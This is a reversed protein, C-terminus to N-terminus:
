DKTVLYIKNAEIGDSIFLRPTEDEPIDYLKLAVIAQQFSKELSLGFGISSYLQSAFVIAADDGISNNMGISAEINDIVKESIISSYCNNLVVLRLNDSSANILEVLTDMNLLKPQDNNDQFVLKGDSTGHGSFHLITPNVENIFQILDTVRAAWRTEFSISDRKLSKQISEHIERAEKELKLKQQQITNRDDDIFEIDPNSAIFLINIKRKAEKLKKIEKILENQTSKQISLDMSLNDITLKRQKELKQYEMEKAKNLKPKKTRRGHIFDGKYIPNELINLITSDRWNTKDLVKEENLINSIKKYSLGDHYMNFIRIAVDKTAYDIVLKKDEHKYGLPAQHPIHGVKIAGALGIKTRESTREIEQQSVSTLIRSIMKGNANTTNIEDNACDLYADNEELFTLIKEWDSVSRTLRDLKLVVITNVKKDRVDQLLREFEPRYNGTKASIGREEYVDYVEYNKYECM